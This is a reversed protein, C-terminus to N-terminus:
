PEPAASYDDYWPWYDRGYGWRYWTPFIPHGGARVGLRMSEAFWSPELTDVCAALAADAASREEAEGGCWYRIDHEVCCPEAWGDDFWLSCGDTVFRQEPLTRPGHPGAACIANARAELAAAAAADSRYPEITHRKPACAALAAALAATLLAASRRRARASL